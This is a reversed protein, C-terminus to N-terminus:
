SAEHLFVKQNGGFGVKLTLEGVRRSRVGPEEREGTQVKSSGCLALTTKCIENM